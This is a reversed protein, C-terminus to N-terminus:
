IAHSRVGTVQKRSGVIIVANKGGFGDDQYHLAKPDAIWREGDVVFMYEYRGSELPVEVSWLGNANKELKYEAQWESFSGSLAVQQAGALQLQFSVKAVTPENLVNETNGSFTFVSVVMVLALTAPMMTTAINWQMQHPRFLFRRLQVHWPLHSTNIKAMVKDCFESSAPPLAEPQVLYQELWEPNNEIMHETQNGM